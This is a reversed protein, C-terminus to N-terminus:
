IHIFNLLNHWNALTIVKYGLAVGSIILTYGAFKYINKIFQMSLKEKNKAFLRVIMFLWLFNGIGFGLSLMLHNLANPEYFHFSDIQLTVFALAPVFTPSAINALGVAFGVWFPGKKSIKDLISNKSNPEDDLEDSVAQKATRFQMLGYVIIAIVILVQFVFFLLPYKDTVDGIMTAIASTAFVAFICFFVDMLGSGASYHTGERQGYNMAMKMAGVAVPGPVLALVIGLVIGIPLALM